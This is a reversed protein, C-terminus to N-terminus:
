KESTRESCHPESPLSEQLGGVQWRKESTIQHESYLSKGGRKGIEQVKFIKQELACATPAHLFGPQPHLIKDSKYSGKIM